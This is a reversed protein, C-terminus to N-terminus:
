SAYVISGTSSSVVGTVALQIVGETIVNVTQGANTGARNDVTANAFGLFNDGAVLADVVAVGYEDVIDALASGEFIVDTLMPYDQFSRGKMEYQRPTATTINAM